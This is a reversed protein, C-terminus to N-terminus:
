VGLVFLYKENDKGGASGGAIGEKMEQFTVMDGKREAKKRTM